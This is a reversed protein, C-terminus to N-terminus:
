MRVALEAHFSFSEVLHLAEPVALIEIVLYGKKSPMPVALFFMSASIYGGFKGALM